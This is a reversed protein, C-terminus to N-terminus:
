AVANAFYGTTAAIFSTFDTSYQALKDVERLEKRTLEGVGFPEAIFTAAERIHKSSSSFGEWDKMALNSNDYAYRGYRDRIDRWGFDAPLSQNLRLAATNQLGLSYWFEPDEAKGSDEGTFLTGTVRDSGQITFGYLSDDWSLYGKKGLGTLVDNAVNFDGVVLSGKGGVIAVTDFGGGLRLIDQGGGYQFLDNGNGLDSQLNSSGDRVTDAGGEAMISNSGVAKRLDAVDNGSGLKVVDGGNNAQVSNGRILVYDKGGATNVYDQGLTDRIQNAGSGGSYSTANRTQEPQLALGDGINVFKPKRSSNMAASQDQGTPVDSRLAAAMLSSSDSSSSSPSVATLSLVLSVSESTSSVTSGNIAVSTIDSPNSANFSVIPNYGYGLADWANGLNAYYFAQGINGGITNGSSDVISGVSGSLTYQGSVINQVTGKYYQLQWQYEQGAILDFTATTPEGNSPNTYTTTYQYLPTQNGNSTTTTGTQIAGNLNETTTFTFSTSSSVANTSSFDATSTSSWATEWSDDYEASLTESVQNSPDVGVTGTESASISFGATNSGSNSTSSSTGQTQSSSISQTFTSSIQFTSTAGPIFTFDINLDAGAALDAVSTTIDGESIDLSSQNSQYIVAADNVNNTVTFTGPSYGTYSKNNGTYSGGPAGIVNYDYPYEATLSNSVQPSSSPIPSLLDFLNYYASYSSSSASNWGSNSVSLGGEASGGDINSTSGNLTSIPTSTGSHGHQEKDGWTNTTTTTYNYNQGFRGTNGSWNGVNISGAFAYDGWNTTFGYLASQPLSIVSSM